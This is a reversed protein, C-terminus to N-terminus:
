SSPVDLGGLINLLTSKGSGSAGLLVTMDGEFLELDVSRLAHVEVEGMRYVKSVASMTFVAERIDDPSGSHPQPLVPIYARSGIM